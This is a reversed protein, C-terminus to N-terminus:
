QHVKVDIKTGMLCTDLGYLLGVLDSSATKVNGLRSGAM